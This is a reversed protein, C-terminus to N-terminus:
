FLLEPCPLLCDVVVAVMGSVAYEGMRTKRQQKKSRGTEDSAAMSRQEAKGITAWKKKKLVIRGHVRKVYPYPQSLSLMFTENYIATEKKGLLCRIQISPGGCIGENLIPRLTNRHWIGRGNVKDAFNKGDSHILIPTPHIGKPCKEKEVSVMPKMADLNQETNTKGSSMGDHIICSIGFNLCVKPKSYIWRTRPPAAITQANFSM